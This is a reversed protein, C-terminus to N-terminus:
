LGAAYLKMVGLLRNWCYRYTPVDAFVNRFRRRSFEPFIALITGRLSSNSISKMFQFILLFGPRDLSFDRSIPVTQFASTRRRHFFHLFLSYNRPIASRTARPAESIERCSNILYFPPSYRRTAFRLSVQRFSETGM